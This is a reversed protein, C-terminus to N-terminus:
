AKLYLHKYDKEIEKFLETTKPITYYGREISPEIRGPSVEKFKPDDHYEQAQGESCYLIVDNERNEIVIPYNIMFSGLGFITLNRYEEVTLNVEKPANLLLNYGM